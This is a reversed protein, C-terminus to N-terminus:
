SIQSLLTCCPARSSMEWLLNSKMIKCVLWSQLRQYLYNALPVYLTHELLWLFQARIDLRVPSPHLQYHERASPLYCHVFGIQQLLTKSLLVGQSQDRGYTFKVRKWLQTDSVGCITTIRTLHPKVQLKLVICTTNKYINSTGTKGKIVKQLHSELLPSGRQLNEHCNNM